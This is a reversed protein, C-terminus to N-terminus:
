TRDEWADHGLILTKLRIKGGIHRSVYFPGKEHTSRMWELRLNEM